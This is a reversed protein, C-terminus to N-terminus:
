NLKKYITPRMTTYCAIGGIINHKLFAEVVAPGLGEIDMAGRSAFHVITRSLQAPCDTNTCRTAAELQDRFVPEGCSPCTKPFAYPLSSEKRASLDVRLVEPIIEGAKRVVVLDGIRIDKERIFDENHLTARSVTTGALRVPALEATPTLVGTRGVQVTIGLLRTAKEEPPYKYAMAWKPVHPLEGLEERQAFDNVKVVAGDIDFPLPEREEGRRVIEQFIAENETLVLCDCVRFGIEKLWDLSEKHTHFEKGSVSQINFILIDLGRQAAVTSDLQRLSGAAANRPNAFLSEGAEERMANLRHFTKKPMFVEGRVVLHEVEEKLVLPISRITKLNETVDEGVTGDGRTAGRVFRGKEYELSVSLGDIKHEVAFEPQHVLTRVSDLFDFLEEKSFVNSLSKLPVKHTVKEFKDLAMGGIRRTPSLPDSFEPYKQELGELEKMWMDYEYDSAGPADLVYYEYSLTRLKNRLDEIKKRIETQSV